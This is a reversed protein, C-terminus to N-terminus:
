LTLSLPLADGINERAKPINLNGMNGMTNRYGAWTINIM